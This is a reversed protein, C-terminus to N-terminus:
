PWDLWLVVCLLLMEVDMFLKVSEFIGGGPLTGFIPFNGANFGAEEDSGM